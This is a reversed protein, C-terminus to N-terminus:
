HVPQKESKTEDVGSGSHNGRPALLHLPTVAKEPNGMRFKDFQSLVEKIQMDSTSLAVHADIVTKGLMTIAKVKDPGTGPKTNVEELTNFAISQVRSIMSKSDVVADLRLHFLALDATGQLMTMYREYMMTRGYLFRGWEDFSLLDRNWFFHQYAQLCGETLSWAHKQNLRRAMDKMKLRALIVQEVQERVFVQHVIQEASRVDDSPYFLDYVGEKRLYRVSPRHLKNYPNFELPPQTIRKRLFALYETPPPLFANMQLEYLLEADLMGPDSILLFKLWYESPHHM